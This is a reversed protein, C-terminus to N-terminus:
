FELVLSLVERQDIQRNSDTRNDIVELLGHDEVESPLLNFKSPSVGSKLKINTYVGVQRYRGLPLEDYRITSEIYVWKAGKAKAQDAPIAKWRTDRYIIEGSDDPVVMYISEVRKFGIIEQLDSDDVNPEPPNDDNIEPNEPDEWPTSKGIAFYISATNFFDLARSVHSLTTAIAM